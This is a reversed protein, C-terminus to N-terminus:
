FYFSPPGHFGFAKRRSGCFNSGNVLLGILRSPYECLYETHPSALSFSDMVALLDGIDSTFFDLCNFQLYKNFLFFEDSEHDVLPWSISPDKRQYLVKGLSHFFELQIDRYFGSLGFLNFEYCKILAVRSDGGCNKSISDSAEKPVYRATLKKINSQTVGNLEIHSQVTPDLQSDIEKRLSNDLSNLILVVRPAELVLRMIKEPAFGDANDILVFSNDESDVIRGNSHNFILSPFSSKKTFNSIDRQSGFSLWDYESYKLRHKALLHKIICTKGCGTPGSVFIIDKTLLAEELQLIKKDAIINEFFTTGSLIDEIALPALEKCKDKNSITPERKSRKNSISADNLSSSKEKKATPM